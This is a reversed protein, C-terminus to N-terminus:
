KVFYHFYFFYLVRFNMQLLFCVKKLIYAQTIDGTYFITRQAVNKNLNAIKPAAKKPAPQNTPPIESRHTM